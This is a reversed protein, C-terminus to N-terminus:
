ELPKSSVLSGNNSRVQELLTPTPRYEGGRGQPAQRDRGSRSSEGGNRIPSVM